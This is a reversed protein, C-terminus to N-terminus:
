HKKKWQVYSRKIIYTMNFIFIAICIIIYFYLLNHVM